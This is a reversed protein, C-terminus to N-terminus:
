SNALDCLDVLLKKMLIEHNIMSNSKIQLEFNYTENLMKEIKNINWKNVQNMFAPKDKWFIPPKLNNIADDLGSTSKNKSVELLRLLRRNITNLYLISKDNELVTDSILKNTKTRNGNFAEDRLHEFNDTEKLNLLEKLENTEIKKNDFFTIIKNLENYLKTRDLNTNEIIINLNETTLGKFLKLKDLIIKKITIENDNYCPVIGNKKSKEFYSRLKSKKDLVESFLYILQEKNKIELSEITELIKDTVNNIFFIKNDEFLSFNLIEKFFQQTDKLIEEQNLNIFKVNSNNIKLYNKFDNKLGLNEGYFLTTKNEILKINQEIIYSKFIM